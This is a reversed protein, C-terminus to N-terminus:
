KQAASKATGRDGMCRVRESHDLVFGERKSSDVEGCHHSFCATNYQLDSQM